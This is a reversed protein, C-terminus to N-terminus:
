EGKFGRYYEVCDLWGELYEVSPSHDGYIDRESLECIYYDYASKWGEDINECRKIMAECAMLGDRWNSM